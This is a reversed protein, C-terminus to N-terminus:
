VPRMLILFSQDKVIDLRCSVKGTKFEKGHERFVDGLFSSLVESAITPDLIKALAVAVEGTYAVNEVSSHLLDILAETVKHTKSETRFGVHLFPHEKNEYFSVGDQVYARSWDSKLGLERKLSALLTRADTDFTLEDTITM